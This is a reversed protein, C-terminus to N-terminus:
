DYWVEGCDLCTHKDLIEDDYPDHPDLRIIAEKEVKIHHCEESNLLSADKLIRLCLNEDPSDRNDTKVM